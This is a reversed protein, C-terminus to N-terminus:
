STMSIKRLAGHAAAAHREEVTFTLPPLRKPTRGGLERAAEAVWDAAHVGPPPEPDRQLLRGALPRLAAILDTSRTLALVVDARLAAELEDGPASGGLVGAIAAGDLPVLADVGGPGM